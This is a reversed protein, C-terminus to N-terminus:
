AVPRPRTLGLLAPVAIRIADLSSLTPRKAFVDGGVRDIAALIRHGGAWTCRLWAGLRGRAGTVLPAAGAFVERTRQVQFALLRAIAPQIVRASLDAETVGFRRLDQLPVYIRDKDLDIAVDQWFNTLQLATCAADSCAVSHADRIDHLALVLRGVPDASHRCYGLVDQFTEYRRVSCDQRFATLLDRLSQVPLAFASVADALAIFVPHDARGALAADLRAEWDDLRELRKGEHEPEDAFDDAARAFAYIAAVAPRVRRPLLLSATPFNEYHARAVRLCHRYAADTETTAM